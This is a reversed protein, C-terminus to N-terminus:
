MDPLDELLRQFRRLHIGEAVSLTDFWEAVEELGEERAVARLSRLETFRPSPNFLPHLCPISRFFPHVIHARTCMCVNLYLNAYVHVCAHAYGGGRGRM